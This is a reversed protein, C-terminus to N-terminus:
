NSNEPHYQYAKINDKIYNEIFKGDGNRIIYSHCYFKKDKFGINPKDLKIIEANKIIDLGEITENNYENKINSLLLQLGACIGIFKLSNNQLRNKLVNFDNNHKILKLLEFSNYHGSICLEEQPPISNINKVIICNRNISYHSIVSVKNGIIYSLFYLDEKKNTINKNIISYDMNKYFLTSISVGKIFPYLKEIENVELMNKIGGAYLISVHKQLINKNKKLYELLNRDYGTLTGDKDMSIVLIEIINNKILFTIWDILKIDTDDRGYSKYVYYDGNVFRTEISSILLQSGYINIAQKILEMNNHLGTNIMIRDCGANFAENIDNINVIGGSWIHPLSAYKNELINIINEKGSKINYLSATVDNLIIEFCNNINKSIYNCTNKYINMFNGVKEVGEYNIGKVVNDNRIDFKTLIRM